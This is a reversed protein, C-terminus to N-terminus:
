FNLGLSERTFNALEHTRGAEIKEVWAPDSLLSRGVAVLDFDGRELGRVLEGLGQPVSAEGALNGFLDGSLGVSGVTITPKGTIKTAWGAIDLDSGDFEPQWYRRQSMHFIYVGADALPLLWREM